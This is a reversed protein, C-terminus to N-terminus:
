RGDRRRKGGGNKAARQVRGITVAIPLVSERVPARAAIPLAVDGFGAFRRLIRVALNTTPPPVQTLASRLIARVEEEM